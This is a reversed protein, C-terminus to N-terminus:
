AGGGDDIVKPIRIYREYTSPALSQLADISLTPGPTDDALLPAQDGGHALPEIGSLDLERLRNMYGLVTSLDRGLIAVEDDSLAIRALSAIRRVEAPSLATHPPDTGAAASSESPDTPM